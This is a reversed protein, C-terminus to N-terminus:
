VTCSCAHLPMMAGPRSQTWPMLRRGRMRAAIAVVSGISHRRPQEQTLAAPDLHQDAAMTIAAVHVADLAASLLRTSLRLAFGTATVLRATVAADIMRRACAAVPHAFIVHRMLTGCRISGITQQGLVLCHRHRFL